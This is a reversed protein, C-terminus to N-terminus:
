EMDEFLRLNDKAEQLGAAAAQGFLARAEAERGERMAIVGLANLAYPSSGAKTLFRKAAEINGESLAACAANLNATPDDPFMRVAVEFVENFERSGPEYTQAVQYMEEQSLQQPKTHLLAKAEEVSFPRVTYSVTYDSHRLAPYWEQLMYRYEDPYLPRRRFLRRVQPQM